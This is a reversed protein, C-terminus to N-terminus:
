QLKWQFTFLKKITTTSKLREKLADILKTREAEIEDEADFINQRLRRKKKELSAIEEQILMKRDITDASREERSLAKIKAKVDRLEKEVAYLKDETYRDIKESEEKFFTMNRSESLQKIHELNKKQMDEFFSQVLPHPAKGPFESIAELNMIEMLTEQDVPQQRSDIGSLVLYEEKEFSDITVLHVTCWGALHKKRMEELFSHKKYDESLNFVVEEMDEIEMEKASKIVYEGLPHNLRLIQNNTLDSHRNEQTIFYYEGCKGLESNKLHFIFEEDDFEGDDRLMRRSLNWFMKQKNDLQFKTLDLHVKLRKHVDEDFEALLTFKTQRMKADIAEEMKQQLENFATDIQEPTRCTQYIKLIKKEFDVGDEISGLIEDSAGFVGEFLKFKENLLEFVREDAKNKTNVFNIVAVDHKQGYRHCRGIRQEVRQPNWPLDYNIVLSCFQMNLGESGAETAIMIEADNKFSSLLENKKLKNGGHFLVIKGMYGHASLYDYLYQQTRRSETFILAKKSAKMKEMRKFGVELAKLLEVTKNDVKISQALALYKKVEEIEENLNALDPTINKNDTDDEISLEDDLDAEDLLESLIKDQASTDQGTKLKELRELITKFTGYIANSSSALLKYLILSTLHRQSPPFVYESDKQLFNSVGEYLIQENQSPIFPFTIAKRKTYKIYETVQSRLTRKCFTKLRTKLHPDAKNSTTYLMKFSRADGFIKGDILSSLGYLEMLSNQLPTATMLIKRRGRLAYEIARGTKNNEKYVNRLKHAEDLVALDWNVSHMEESMKAAFNYSLIAISDTLSFMGPVYNKSDVIASPLNFKEELESKWQERLSAPCIVILHRKREAWYQCLVIGAEVTKGLGVEDALIVGKSLPSKIAFSAAEIQHPNLDVCADMLGQSVGGLNNNKNLRTLEYAFYQAQQKSIM